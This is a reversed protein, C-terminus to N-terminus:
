HNIRGQNNIIVDEEEFTFPYRYSSPINILIHLWEHELLWSNIRLYLILVKKKLIRENM